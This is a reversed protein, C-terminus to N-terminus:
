GKDTFSWGGIIIILLRTMCSKGDISRPLCQSFHVCVCVCVCVCMCVYACACARACVYLWMDTLVSTHVMYLWNESTINWFHLLKHWCVVVCVQMELERAVMSFHLVRLACM